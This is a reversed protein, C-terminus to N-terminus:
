IKTENLFLNRVHLKYKTDARGPKGPRFRTHAALVVAPRSFPFGLNHKILRMLIL